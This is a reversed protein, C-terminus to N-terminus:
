GFYIQRNKRRSFRKFYLCFNKERDTSGGTLLWNRELSINDVNLEKDEPLKYYERFAKEQNEDLMSLLEEAM